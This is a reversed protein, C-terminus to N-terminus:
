HTDDIEDSIRADHRTCSVTKAFLIALIGALPLCTLWARGICIARATALDSHSNVSPVAAYLLSGMVMCGLFLLTLLLFPRSAARYLPSDWRVVILVANLSIWALCVSAVVYVAYRIGDSLHYLPLQAACKNLSDNEDLFYKSSPV